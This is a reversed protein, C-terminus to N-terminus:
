INESKYVMRKIFRLKKDTVLVRVTYPTEKIRSIAADYTSKTTRRHVLEKDPVSITYIKEGLFNRRATAYITEDANQITITVETKFM